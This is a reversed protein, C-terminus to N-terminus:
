NIYNIRSQLPDRGTIEPLTLFVVAVVFLDDTLIFQGYIFLLVDEACKCDIGIRCRAGPPARAPGPALAM